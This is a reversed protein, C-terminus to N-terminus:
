VLSDAIMASSHSTHRPLGGIRYNDKTGASRGIEMWAEFARHKNMNLPGGRYAAVLRVDRM